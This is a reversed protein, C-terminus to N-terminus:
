YLIMKRTQSFNDVILQCYYIGSPLGSGDFLVEYEGPQKQENVLVAIEHGMVNYVKLLVKGSVSLQYSIVSLQDFPNPFIFFSEIGSTEVIGVPDTNYYAEWGPATIAYNTSFTVFMQGSPSTVPPPLEPAQYSGSYEALLEQSALDYIKVPDNDEETDFKNFYLTVSTADPPIIKWMCTTGNHYDRPGSGDSFTDSVATLTQLGSCYVPIESTFSVLWGLSTVADDSQFTVLMKNGSSTIDNPINSGSFTGLVPAATTDGDYITLIDNTDTNFELFTITINLVSDDPIILWKCNLNNEYHYVPGSGDDITGDTITLIKLGDCSYPYNYQNTDPFGNIIVEQANNFNTGGPTLDDTYFYGNFSGSWGWNFHYHYNGQYGDCVFAHGSINPVSWGAYYMPIHRDLHSILLSDWDMSTSDRYVYQTEPLYKFFTRMSYAAKHNYMGSGNPGYVLDVSVGLHFLLEAVAPNSKLLEIAMEDWRYNTNGFDASLTGYPPCQYTYSGTGQLPFRFYNLVQGMATAVCGAYAHGGPGAPDAPCMENYYIGQDWLTTLLPEIDKNEKLINLQAPNDGLLRNWTQRVEPEPKITNQMAHYVQQKYSLILDHFQPPQHETSFKGEFSYGPVPYVIDTAAVIVFGSYNMNFIYLVATSHFYETFSQETKIESFDVVEYQNVREYFFNIAVKEAQKINIPSGSLIKVQLVIVSFLIIIISNKM